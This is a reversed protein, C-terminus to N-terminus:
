RTGSRSGHEMAVLVLVLNGELKARKAHLNARDALSTQTPSVSRARLYVALNSYGAETIGGLAGRYPVYYCNTRAPVMVSM